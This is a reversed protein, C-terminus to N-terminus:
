HKRNRVSLINGIKYYIYIYNHQRDKKEDNIRQCKQRRLKGKVLNERVFIRHGIKTEQIVDLGVNV